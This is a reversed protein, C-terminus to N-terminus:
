RKDNFDDNFDNIVDCSFWSYCVSKTDSHRFDWTGRGLNNQFSEPPPHGQVEGVGM